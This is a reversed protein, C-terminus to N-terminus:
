KWAARAAACFPSGNSATACGSKLSAFIEVEAHPLPHTLTQYCSSTTASVILSGQELALCEQPAILGALARGVEEVRDDADGARLPIGDTWRRVTLGFM